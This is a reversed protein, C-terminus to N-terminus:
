CGAHSSHPASVSRRVVITSTPRVWRRMITLVRGYEGALGPSVIVRRDDVIMVKSHIYLLESVYAAREEDETGAWREDLLSTRDHLMHQVVNDSVDEDSRLEQAANRWRDVIERAEEVSAPMPYTETKLEPKKGSTTQEALSKGTPIAVSVEKPDEIGEGSGVWIRGLAVNLQHFSVGSREEIQKM